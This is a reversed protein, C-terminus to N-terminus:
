PLVRGARAARVRVDTGLRKGGAFCALVVRRDARGVSDREGPLHLVSHLDIVQDGLLDLVLEGRAEGRSTPAVVPSHVTRGDLRDFAIAHADVDRITKGLGRAHVPVADE